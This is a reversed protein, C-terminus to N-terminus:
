KKEKDAAAAESRRKAVIECHAEIAYLALIEEPDFALGWKRKIRWWEKGYWCHAAANPPLWEAITKSGKQRNLSASVAVLHAPDGTDNAYNERMDPNWASGGSAHAEALPVLHDVDLDAPNTFEQGSYPDLWKGSEVRCGDASLKVPVVSEEILVEQRTDQCDKDADTWHKWADRSYKEASSPKAKAASTPKDKDTNSALDVLEPMIAGVALALGAAIMLPREM